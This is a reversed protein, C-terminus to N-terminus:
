KDQDRKWKFYQSVIILFAEDRPMWGAGFQGGKDYKVRLTMVINQTEPDTLEIAWHEGRARFYFEYEDYMGEGQVPCNGGLYFFKLSM